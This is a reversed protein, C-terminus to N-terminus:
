RKTPPLFASLFDGTNRLRGTREQWASWTRIEDAELAEALAPAKSVFHALLQELLDALTFSPEAQRPVLVAPLDYEHAPRPLEFPRGGIAVPITKRRDIPLVQAYQIPGPQAWTRTRELEVRRAWARQAGREDGMHTVVLVLARSWLFCVFRQENQILNALPAGHKRAEPGLCALAALAFAGQMPNEDQEFCVRLQLAGETGFRAFALAIGLRVSSHSDRELIKVLDDYITEVWGDFGALALAAIARADPNARSGIFEVLDAVAARYARDRSPLGGITRLARQAQWAQKPEARRLCAVLRPLSVGPELTVLEAIADDASDTALDEVLQDARDVGPVVPLSLPPAPVLAGVCLMLSVRISTM